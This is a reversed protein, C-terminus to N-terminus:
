YKIPRKSFFIIVINNLNGIDLLFESRFEKFEVGTEFESIRLVEIFTYLINLILRLNISDTCNIQTKRHSHVSRFIFQIKLCLKIQTKIFGIVYEIEMNLLNVFINYVGFKYLFLVNEKCNLQQDRDSQCEAWSGQSHLLLM